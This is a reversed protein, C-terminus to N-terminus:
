ANRLVWDAAASREVVLHANPIDNDSARARAADVSHGHDLWRQVLRRELTDIGPNLFVTIDFLGHLECWPPSTLLLYNGEVIVVTDARAVRYHDPVVRDAARDFGPVSVDTEADRLAKVVEVFGAADFTIPAGKRHRLGRQDLVANDLHFGDMPVVVSAVGQQALGDHLAAAVTSKGAGPPGAIALLLRATDRSRAVVADRLEPHVTM